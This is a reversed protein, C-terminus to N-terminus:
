RPPLAGVFGYGDGSTRRVSLLQSAIPEAKPAVANCAPASAPKGPGAACHM